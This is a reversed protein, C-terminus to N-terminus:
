FPLGEFHRCRVTVAVAARHFVESYILETTGRDAISWAYEIHQVDDTVFLCWEDDDDRGHAFCGVGEFSDDVSSQSGVQLLRVIFQCANLVVVGIDCAVEEGDSVSEQLVFDMGEDVLQAIDYLSHGVIREGFSIVAEVVIVVVLYDGVAFEDGGTNDTVSEVAEADIIDQEIHGFTQTGVVSPALCFDIHGLGCEEQM